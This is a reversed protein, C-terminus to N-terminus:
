RFEKNLNAADVRYVHGLIFQRSRVITVAKDFEHVHQIGIVGNRNEIHDFQESSRHTNGLAAQVVQVVLRAVAAGVDEYAIEVGVVNVLM